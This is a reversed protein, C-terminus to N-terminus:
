AFVALPAFLGPFSWAVLTGVDTSGIRRDLFAAALILACGYALICLEPGSLGSGNALNYLLVAAVTLTGTAPIWRGRAIPVRPLGPLLLLAGAALSVLGAWASDHPLVGVLVLVGYGLLLLAVLARPDVRRDPATREDPM